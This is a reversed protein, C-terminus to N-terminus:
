KGYDTSYNFMIDNDGGGVDAQYAIYAYGQSAFVSPYRDDNTNGTGWGSLGSGTDLTDIMCMVNWDGSANEEWGHVAIYNTGDYNVGISTMGDPEGDDELSVINWSGSIGGDTAYIWAAVNETGNDYTWTSIVLQNNNGWTVVEPYTRHDVVGAGFWYFGELGDPDNFSADASKLWYIDDYSTSTQRTGWIWIKGDDSIAIEPFRCDRPASASYVRNDWTVGNDISTALGWCYNAVDNVTEYCVYIRGLADEAMSLLQDDDEYVDDIRVDTSWPADRGYDLWPPYNTIGTYICEAKIEITAPLVQRKIASAPIHAPIIDAAFAIAVLCVMLIFIKKM